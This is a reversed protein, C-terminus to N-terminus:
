VLSFANAFNVEFHSMQVSVVPSFKKDACLNNRRRMFFFVNKRRRNIFAAAEKERRTSGSQERRPSHANM